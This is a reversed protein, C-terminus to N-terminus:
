VLYNDNWTSERTDGDIWGWTERAKDVDKDSYKLYWLVMEYYLSYSIREGDKLKPAVWWICFQLGFFLIHFQPPWEFRPSDYKDKWGLEVFGMYMPLGWTIYYDNSFLKFVKNSARRVMPYNSYLHDPKNKNYPRDRNMEITQRYSRRVLKRIRIISGVYNIPEFYPTGHKAVGLYYRKVSPKFVGTINIKM